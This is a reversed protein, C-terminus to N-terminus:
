EKLAGVTLGQVFKNQLAIYVLIVPIVAVTMAAFMLPLDATYQTIYYQPLLQLTQWEEKRLFILPLLYNNWAGLFIFIGVATLSPTSMPLVIKFYLSFDNCGDIRGADLISNPLGDFYNKLVLLAFPIGFGCMILIVSLVNNTLNIKAMFIFLPFLSVGEPLMIGMLLILFLINKLRFRMVSFGYAALSSIFLVIITTSVSVIITNLYYRPIVSKTLVERYNFLINKIMFYEQQGFKLQITPSTKFSTYLLVGVPYLTFVATAFLLLFILILTFNLKNKIM